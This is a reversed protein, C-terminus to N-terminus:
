TKAVILPVRLEDDSLGGHVGIMQFRKEQALWDTIITNSQMLLLRDGIRQSLRPHPEGLGFWNEEILQQSPYSRALDKLESEIYVDFATECGARLYCYAARPEGCLPLILMEALDPHKELDLTEAPSTDVQGHDACVIVLTDTGQIQELLAAFAQDLLMLHQQAAESWIGTRHGITDLESWYLYTYRRGPSQLIQVTKTLMEQLNRYSHGKARGLHTQSFDSGAINAPSLTCADVEIRDAFATHGLLKGADIGCASYGPGGYRSGGPLVSLVSGLEKFYTFWGTLGHQQPAEGTLFTTIASATTPPFVSTMSGRLAANLHVAEPHSRLYNYGLGDIVWLLVQRQHIIEDTPLLTLHAYAHDAGGLGVQLSAMLNVISGGQYDPLQM